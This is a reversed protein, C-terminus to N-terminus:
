ELRAAPTMGPDATVHCESTKELGGGCAEHGGHGHSYEGGRELFGVVSVLGPMQHRAVPVPFRAAVRHDRITRGQPSQPRWSSGGSKPARGRQGGDIWVRQREEVRRGSPRRVSRAMDVVGADAIESVGAEGVVAPLAAVQRRGKGLVRQFPEVAEGGNADRREGSEVNRGVGEAPQALM